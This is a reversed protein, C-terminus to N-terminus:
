RMCPVVYRGLACPAERLARTASEGARPWTFVYVHGWLAYSKRQGAPICSPMCSANRRASRTDSPGIDSARAHRIQAQPKGLSSAVVSKDCLGCSIDSSMGRVNALGRTQEPGRPGAFCRAYFSAVRGNVFQGVGCHRKGAFPRTRTPGGGYRCRRRFSFTPARTM